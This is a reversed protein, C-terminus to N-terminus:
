GGDSLIQKLQNIQKREGAIVLTTGSALVHDPGPNITKRQNKEILAIITAGTKQRVMLKGITVGNCKAQPSIKYWEIILDELAIEINELAKPQYNMGGIIGALQRAEEDDLTVVSISEDPDNPDFHYMERRGDDHIIVVAKEGTRTVVQYKRGIGPLDTERIDM